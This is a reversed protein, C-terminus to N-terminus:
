APPKSPGTAYITRGEELVAWYIKGPDDAYKKLDEPTAVVFDVPVLGHKIRCHLDQATHLRHTGNPMVILLDVDSDPSMKGRAASGFLIIRLPKFAQVIQRVLDELFAADPKTAATDDM